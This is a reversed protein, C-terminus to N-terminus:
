RITPRTKILSQFDFEKQSMQDLMAALKAAMESEGNIWHLYLEIALYSLRFEDSVEGIEKAIVAAIAALTGFNKKTEERDSWSVAASLSRLFLGTFHRRNAPAIRDLTGMHVLVTKTLASWDNLSAANEMLSQYLFGFLELNGGAEAPDLGRMFWSGADVFSNQRLTIQGLDLCFAAIEGPQHLEEAQKLGARAQEEALSLNGQLLYCHGLIGRLKLEGVQDQNGRALKLAEHCAQLAADPRNSALLLQAEDAKFAAQRSYDRLGLATAFGHRAYELAEDIRGMRKLNQGLQGDLALVAAEDGLKHYLSRATIAATQAGEVDAVAMLLRALVAYDRALEETREEGRHEISKRINFVAAQVDGRKQLIRSFSAYAAALRQEANEAESSELGTFVQQALENLIQSRGETRPRDV